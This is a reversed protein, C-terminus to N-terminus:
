VVGVVATGAIRDHIGTRTESRSVSVVIWLMVGLLLLGGIAPILGLLIWSNRLAAPGLGAAEEAESVVRMNMIRKAFTAGSVAEFAVYYVFWVGATIASQAWADTGGLGITPAPLGMVALLLSAPIGVIVADLVRALIRKGPGPTWTRSPAAPDITAIDSANKTM